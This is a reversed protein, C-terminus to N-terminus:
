QERVIQAEDKALPGVIRTEVKQGPHVESFRGTIVMQGEKLGDLVEYKTPTDLGLRVPREEVENRDNVVYVSSTQGPPVSEIPITLAQPRREVPLMVRAYMGPVLDLNPNPVEIETTMTRTDQNVRLSSRTITGKFSRDGLSEVRVDVPDGVHVDKVYKVEVPFDLRLHYNDSVRVLPLSQTESATGAQILAGPDVFRRTIVGGFPATIHTYGVLTQYREVEAKAAAVGAEATGDKAEANDLDQQAVLNPNDKVVAALRTYNTAAARYEAEARREAAIANALQANLEPVELTALPQGAKVRDGFDVNMQSVYGSVKAHLEVEQYPRFEAVVPVQIYLDERTVRCVPVALAPAAPSRTPESKAHAELARWVPIAIAALVFVAIIRWNAKRIIGPLRQLVQRASVGTPRVPKDPPPAPPLAGSSSNDVHHNTEASM